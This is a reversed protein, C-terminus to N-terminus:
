TWGKGEDFGVQPKAFRFGEWMFKCAGVLGFKPIVERLLQDPTRIKVPMEKKSRAVVKQLKYDMTLFYNMGACEACWLHYADLAQNLNLPNTAGQFAGTIKTLEIFRPARFNSLFDLTYEKPKKLGGAIIRSQPAIPDPVDNIPCGFFRGSASMMGPLGWTELDVERHSHFKLRGSIGAYALMGLMIADRKQTDSKIKHIDNTTYPERVVIEQELGGWNITQKKPRFVHKKVASFKLINTDLFVDAVSAVKAM